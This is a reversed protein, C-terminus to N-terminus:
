KSLKFTKISFLPDLFAREDKDTKNYKTYLIIKVHIKYTYERYFCKYKMNM